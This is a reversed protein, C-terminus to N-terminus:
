AWESGDSDRHPMAHGSEKKCWRDLTVTTQSESSTYTKRMPNLEGCYDPGADPYRIM